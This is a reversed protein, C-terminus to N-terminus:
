KFYDLVTFQNPIIQKTKIGLKEAAKLNPLMDDLFLTEKPLIMAEELLQQYIEKDPKVM